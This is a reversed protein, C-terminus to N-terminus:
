FHVRGGLGIQVDLMYASAYIAFPSAFSFRFNSVLGMEFNETIPFFSNISMDLGVMPNLTLTTTGSTFSSTPLMFVAGLGIVNMVSNAQYQFAVGFPVDVYLANGAPDGSPYIRRAVLDVASYVGVAPVFFFQGVVGGQFGIGGAAGTTSYNTIAIGVKPALFFGTKRSDAAAPAPNECWAPLSVLTVLVLLAQIFKM